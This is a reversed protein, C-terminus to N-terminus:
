WLNEKSRRWETGWRVAEKPEKGEGENIKGQNNRRLVARQGYKKQHPSPLLERQKMYLM